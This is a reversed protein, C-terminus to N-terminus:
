HRVPDVSCLAYWRRASAPWTLSHAGQAQTKEPLLARNESRQTERPQRRHGNHQAQAPAMSEPYRWSSKAAVQVGVRWPRCFSRELAILLAAM